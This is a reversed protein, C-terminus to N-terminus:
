YKLQDHKKGKKINGLMTIHWNEGFSSSGGWEDGM